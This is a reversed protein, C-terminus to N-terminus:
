LLGFLCYKVDDPTMFNIDTVILQCKGNHVTTSVKAKRSNLEVKDHFYTAFSNAFTSGLVPVGGVMLNSPIGVPSLDKAVKVAKWINNKSGLTMKKVKSVKKSRFYEKIESTLSKIQPLHRTDPRLNLITNRKNLKQKISWPVNPNNHPPTSLTCKLQHWDILQTLLLM